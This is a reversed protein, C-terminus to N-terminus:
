EIRARETATRSSLFTALQTQIADTPNVVDLQTTRLAFPPAVPPAVKSPQSSVYLALHTADAWRVAAATVTETGSALNAQVPLTATPVPAYSFTGVGPLGLARTLADSGPLTAEEDLEGFVLLLDPRPGASAAPEAFTARALSGPATRDVLWLALNWLPEFMLHETTEDLGRPVGWRSFLAGEYPARLTYSEAIEELLSEGHITMAAASVRTDTALIAETCAGLSVGIMGIRSADFSLTALEPAVAQIASLDGLRAFRLTAHADADTQVFLGEVYAMSGTLDPDPPASAAYAAFLDLASTESMGDTGDIQRLQNRADVPHLSRDGHLPLDIGLVAVGRRALAEAFAFTIARSDGGGHLVVVVPLATPSVGSPIALAYPVDESAGLELDGSADRLPLGIEAGSGGIVRPAGFTGLVVAGVHTHDLGYSTGDAALLDSALGPTAPVGFLEDLEAATTFSRTVTAVPVPLAADTQLEELRVQDRTVDDTTFPALGVISAREVGAAVVADLAPGIVGRARVLAPSTGSEGDRVSAFLPSAALSSGDAARLRSTVVAAYHHRARLVVGRVPRVGLWGDAPRWEVRLPILTGEDSSGPEVDVLLIADALSASGGVAADAPVSTPDLAGDIRFFIGCAVCFGSRLSVQDRVGEWARQFRAPVPLAGIAIAGSADRYLDSPFPVEGWDIVGVDPVVFHVSAPGPAYADLAADSAADNGAEPGADTPPVAPTCAVVALGLCCCAAARRIDM